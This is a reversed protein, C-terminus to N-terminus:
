STIEPWDWRTTMYKSRNGPASEYKKTACEKCRKKEDGNDFPPDAIEGCDDCTYKNETNV